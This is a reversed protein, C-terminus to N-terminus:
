SYRNPKSAILTEIDRVTKFRERISPQIASVSKKRMKLHAGAQLMGDNARDMSSYAILFPPEDPHEAFYELITTGYDGDLFFDVFLIDPWPGSELAALLEPVLAFTRLTHEEAIDKPFSRQWSLRNIRSDDILWINIPRSGTM